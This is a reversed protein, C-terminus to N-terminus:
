RYFQSACTSFDSVYSAVTTVLFILVPHLATQSPTFRVRALFALMHRRPTQEDMTRKSASPDSGAEREVM